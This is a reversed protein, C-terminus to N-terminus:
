LKSICTDGYPTAPVGRIVVGGFKEKKERDDRMEKRWIEMDKIFAVVNESKSMNIPQVDNGVQMMQAGSIIATFGFDNMDLAQDRAGHLRGELIDRCLTVQETIPRGLGVGDVTRLANVM